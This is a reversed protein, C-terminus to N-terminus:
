NKASPDLDEGFVRLPNAVIMYSSIVIRINVRELGNVADPGKTPPSGHVCTCMLHVRQLINKASSNVEKKRLTEDINEFPTNSMQISNVNKDLFKQLIVSTCYLARCKDWFLKIIRQVQKRINKEMLEKVLEELPIVKARCHV